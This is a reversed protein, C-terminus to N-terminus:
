QGLFFRTRETPTLPRDVLRRSYDILQQRQPLLPWIRITFDGDSGVAIRLGDPSIKASAVHPSPAFVALQVGSQVDWLRATGDQWSSTLVRSGDSSFQTKLNGYLHGKLTLLSKGTRSDWIRATGDDASTLVLSGDPSFIASNVEYETGTLTVRLKCSGVDYIQPSNNNGASLVKGGDPSFSVRRGSRFKGSQQRFVCTTAGSELDWVSVTSDGGLIDGGVTVIQTGNPNFHVDNVGEQGGLVKLQKGTAADFIRASSDRKSAPPLRYDTTRAVLLRSNPSFEADALGYDVPGQLAVLQKGTAAEWVHATGNYPTTVVLRSDPSFRADGYTTETLSTVLHGDRADHISSVNSGDNVLLFLGNPSFSVDPGRNTERTERFSVSPEATTAAQWVAVGPKEVNLIRQGDPSLVMRPLTMGGNPDGGFVAIKKAKVYDWVYVQGNVISVYLIPLSPHFYVNWISHGQSMLGAPRGSDTRWMIVNGDRSGTAVLKSDPSFAATNVIDAHGRLVAIQAGTEANWLAATRDEAATVILRGDQSFQADDLLGEHAKYSLVEKGTATEWVKVSGLSGATMFRKGDTTFRLAEVLGGLPLAAVVTGSAADWLVDNAPATTTVLRSDDPSFEVLEGKGALTLQFVKKGTRSDCVQATGDESVSAIRSGDHSFAVHKVEAKHEQCSALLSANEASWVQVAKDVAIAVRGGNRDFAAHNVLGQIPVLIHWRHRFSANYLAAEAEPVYPRDPTRFNRPLGERALLVSDDYGYADAQQLSLDALFLSQTSLAQDRQHQAINRQTEAIQKQQNARSREDEAESQKQRAIVTQNEARERERDAEAQKQKAIDRQSLATSRQVLAYSTLCILILLVVSVAYRFIRQRRVDEGILDAKSIGRLTAAITAVADRLSPHRMSLHEQGRAWRLDVHLLESAFIGKLISPLATTRSWDYDSAADSWVITGDTQVVIIKGWHDKGKALWLSVEREVSKSQAADESALLILYRSSRLAQEISVWLPSSPDLGYKDRFLYLARTRFFPKVFSHLGLQLAEALNQDVSRKYSIFGVYEVRSHSYWM